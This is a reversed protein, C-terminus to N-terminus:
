HFPFFIAEMMRSTVPHVMLRHYVLGWRTVYYRGDKTKKIGCFHAMGSKLFWEALGLETPTKGTEESIAGLEKMKKKTREAQIRASALGGAM